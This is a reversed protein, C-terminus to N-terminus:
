GIVYVFPVVTPIGEEVNQLHNQKGPHGTELFDLPIPRKQLEHDIHDVELILPIISLPLLLDVIHKSKPM